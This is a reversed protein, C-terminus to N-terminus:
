PVVHVPVTTYVFAFQGVSDVIVHEPLGNGQAMAPRTIGLDRIVLFMMCAAIITLVCKTYRDVM